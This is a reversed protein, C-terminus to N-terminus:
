RAGSSKKKEKKKKAADDLNHTLVIPALDTGTRKVMNGELRFSLTRASVPRTVGTEADVIVKPSDAIKFSFVPESQGNVTEHSIKIPLYGQIGHLRFATEYRHHNLSWTFVRIQDFDFPLGGHPPTLVTVYETFEKPAPKSETKSAEDSAESSSANKRKGSSAKGERPHEHTPDQDYVQAIPYAGVM